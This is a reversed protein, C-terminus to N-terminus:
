IRGCQKNNNENKEEKRMKKRMKAKWKSIYPCTICPEKRGECEVYEETCNPFELKRELKRVESHVTPGKSAYKRKKVM